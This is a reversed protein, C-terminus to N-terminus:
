TGGVAVLNVTSSFPAPAVAQGEEFVTAIHVKVVPICLLKLVVDTTNFCNYSPRTTKSWALSM